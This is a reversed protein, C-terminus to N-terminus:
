EMELVSIGAPIEFEFRAPDVPIFQTNFFEFLNSDDYQNYTVVRIIEDTEKSLRIVISTIEETKKRAKLDLEVYDKAVEKVAIDFNTRILTIDSLFAGGAGSKFFQTADGTMVQNEDPRFIWLAKGNTIIQHTEPSEYEWRMKGPHSFFAKGSAKETMELAALRSIQSFDAVFSKGAYKKELRSLIQDETYSELSLAPGTGFLALVLFASLVCLKTMRLM